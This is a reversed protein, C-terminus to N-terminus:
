NLTSASRDKYCVEFIEPEAELFCQILKPNFQGCEGNKIMYLAKQRTFAKKYVRNSILADYVDALSVVQAWISIEDGKLHDPYGKGDWREHHHRCIDYCYPFLISERVQPVRELMECGRVTHTKMIEFEENTLRGPKNLIADPIAIKGVDHMASADAILPIDEVKVGYEPFKEVVRKILVTTVSRIRYVHEGSECDRFEIVNALTDIISSNMERLKKAQAALAAEQREVVNSLESRAEYLEIVNGIRRHILEPLFPKGIVDMVGMEYAHSLTNEDNEATILFVPIRRLLDQQRMKMLVEFGDMEPMVLDLLLAVVRGQFRKLQELTQLGNEAEAIEFEDGFTLALLARNIEVDDAILIVRKEKEQMAESTKKM